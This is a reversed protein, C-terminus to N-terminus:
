PAPPAPSHPSFSPPPNRLIPHFAGAAIQEALANMRLCEARSISKNSDGTFTQLSRNSAVQPPVYVIMLLGQACYDFLLGPPKYKEGFPENTLLIIAGQNEIVWTKVKKEAESIFPSVLVGDNRVTQMWLRKRCILEQPSFSRSIRVAAVNPENMLGWNGYADFTINGDTIAFRNFWGPHAKRMLRRRPNDSVYTLMKSLQSEGTLFTDHYNDSFIRIGSPHGLSAWIDSCSRKLHAIISGLHVACNERIYIVFHLHDPMICRRLISIFPFQHRLSSLASAITQGIPSLVARPPWEHNDIEGGIQSFDDIGPAKNLVIHYICRSQYDHGPCRIGANHHNRRSSM